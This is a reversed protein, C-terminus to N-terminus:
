DFALIVETHSGALDNTDLAAITEGTRSWCAVSTLDQAANGGAVGEHLVECGFLGIDADVADASTELKAKFECQRAYVADDASAIDLNVEAGFVCRDFHHNVGASGNHAATLLSTGGSDVFKVDSLRLNIVSTSGANTLYLGTGNHDIWVNEISMDYTTAPQASFSKAIVATGGASADDIVVAGNRGVGILSVGDIAPWTLNEQYTGPLVLVAQKSATVAAFASGISLFPDLLSGDGANRGGKSVWLHEATGAGGGVLSDLTNVYQDYPDVHHWQAKLQTITKQTM